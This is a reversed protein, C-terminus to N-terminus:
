PVRVRSADDRQAPTGAHGKSPETEQKRSPPLKRLVLLVVLLLATTTVALVHLNVAVALGIAATALLTAATTLGHVRDDRATFITGAGLFSIGAITAEIIRIPDFRLEREHEFHDIFAEGLMVFLCASVGVLVHTRLGAPRDRAEREWGLAGSILGALLLSPLFALQSAAVAALEGLSWGEGVV